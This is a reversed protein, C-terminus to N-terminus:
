PGAAEGQPRTRRADVGASCRLNYDDSVLHLAEDDAALFGHVRKWATMIAQRCGGQGLRGPRRRRTGGGVRQCTRLLWPCRVKATGGGQCGPMWRKGVFFGFGSRTCSRQQRRPVTQRSHRSRPRQGLSEADRGARDPATQCFQSAGRRHGGIPIATNTTPAFGQGRCVRREQNPSKSASTLGLSRPSGIDGSHQVQLPRRGGDSSLTGDANFDLEYYDLGAIQTAM